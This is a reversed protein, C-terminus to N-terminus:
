RMKLRGPVDAFLYADLKYDIRDAMIESLMNM